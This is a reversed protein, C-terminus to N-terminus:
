PMLQVNATRALALLEAPYAHEGHLHAYDQRSAIFDRYRQAHANNASCAFFIALKRHEPPVPVLPVRQSARHQVRFDFMVLDGARSPISHQKIATRARREIRQRLSPNKSGEDRQLHSRPIVDLGGGYIRSNDQLYIAVQAMSFDPEHHFTHGVSEQSSTDRHWGGFGSDHASMEPLYIFNDGLVARAAAVLPPHVLLWRLAPYRSALDVRLGAGNSGHALDGPLLPARDFIQLLERRLDAIQAAEFVRPVVVFGDRRFTSQLADM